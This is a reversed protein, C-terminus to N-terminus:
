SRRSAHLLGMIGLAIVETGGVLMWIAKDAASGTFFHSFDSYLSNSTHIGFLLLVTGGALFELAVIKIM